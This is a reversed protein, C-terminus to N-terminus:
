ERCPWQDWYQEGCLCTDPCHVDHYAADCNRCVRALVMTSRRVSVFGGKPPKVVTIRDNCTPCRQGGLRKLFGLVSM